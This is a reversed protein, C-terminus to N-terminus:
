RGEVNLLKTHRKLSRLAVYIAAGGLLLALWGLHVATDGESIIERAYHFLLFAAIIGFFGSYERKLVNRLSFPVTPPQWLVFRPIFAPVRRTWALYEAGFKQALFREEAAVIRELYVVLFLAMALVATLSETFLVFAMYVIANGLYLPNRVISYIGTTNLSEAIQAKTNRGSTGKPTYGVTYARISLGFFALLMCAAEYALDAQHGFATEVAEPTRMILALFPFFALIVYSRWRFLWDGQRAITENLM